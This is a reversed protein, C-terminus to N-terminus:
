ARFLRDDSLLNALTRGFRTAPEGDMARHDFTICCPLVDRAVIEGRASVVPRRVPASPGFTMVQPVNLLPLGIMWGSINLRESSSITITGSLREEARLKGSRARAILERLEGSIEELPKEAASRVVPVVLGSEQAHVGEIAVAVGVNVENWLVIEDNVVSANCIPVERAALAVAKVYLALASIKPGAEGSRANLDARCRLVDSVDIEFLVHTEAAIRKSRLMNEAISRRLGKIPIRSRATLATLHREEVTDALSFDGDLAALVDERVIRGGPGSGRIKSLDIGHETALRRALGSIAVRSPKHVIPSEQDQEVPEAFSAASECAGLTSTQEYEEATEAIKGIVTDVPVTSGAGVVIHVFGSWGAELETVVKETEVSLLKEGRSVADGERAHWEVITGESMAMSLQPLLVERLM